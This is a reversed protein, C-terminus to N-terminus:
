CVQENLGVTALRLTCRPMFLLLPATVIPGLGQISWFIDPSLLNDSM